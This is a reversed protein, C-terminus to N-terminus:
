CLTSLVTYPSHETSFHNCALKLELTLAWSLLTLTNAVCTNEKILFEYKKSSWMYLRSECLMKFDLTDQYLSLYHIIFLNIDHDRCVLAGCVSSGAGLAMGICTCKGPLGPAM